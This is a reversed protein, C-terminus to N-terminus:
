AAKSPNSDAAIVAASQADTETAEGAKVKRM